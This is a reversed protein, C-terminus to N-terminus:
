APPVSSPNAELVTKLVDILQDLRFPKFLVAKPHLGNQKAKVISHGPDYGFGTMLIMPVHDMVKELRLMLQYGSYDPLRIDSIIADYSDEGGSRRVMLVAEDGEHATEVICGYRELLRHADERVQDDEDVVLIRKGRLMGHQQSKEDAPVAELPTMKEGIQQITRKIDRSNQLIRGLRDMVEPSHGIYGEMVHVADNLIADVPMAVASHIADCSQQATNAKQAVLLELTNLAFAVDRAFIELFQLDSDSFASVEPSEVNITGLVQDHLILPVTLSSRANAVGPIFLPDNLVDHCIYSLGSAAVYGTIGNEHMRALLRRDSAEEDIGVSLLPLLNGTTQELVRIEIVDFSLLDRLYHQINDKLLDIREDVEMMFIENPRLDALERGAQHIAALKQEQLIEETIDSVTVILQRSIDQSQIPAAHVKFYRNNESHLTSQSQDGTALSTHFPCFDPGMIEPNHLLEYFTMGLPVGEERQAWQLLRRNAWIIRLDSDVLAVGEPMDRLMIGSQVIGRIESVQPLASRSLWIGDIGDEELMPFAKEVSEVHIWEIVEGRHTDQSPANEPPAGYRVESPSEGLSMDPSAPPAFDAADGVWILRSM